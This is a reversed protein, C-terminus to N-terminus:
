CPIVEATITSAITAELEECSEDKSSKRTDNRCRGKPTAQLLLDPKSAVANTTLAEAKDYRIYSLDDTTPSSTDAVSPSRSDADSQAAENYTEQKRIPRQKEESQGKRQTGAKAPFIPNPRESPPKVTNDKNSELQLNKTSSRTLRGQEAPAPAVASSIELETEEM